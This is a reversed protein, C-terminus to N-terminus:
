GGSGSQPACPDAWKTKNKRSFRACNPNQSCSLWQMCQKIEKGHSSQQHNNIIKATSTDIQIMDWHIHCRKGCCFGKRECSHVGSMSGLIASRCTPVSFVGANLTLECKVPITVKTHPSESQRLFLPFTLFMLWKASDFKTHLLQLYECFPM